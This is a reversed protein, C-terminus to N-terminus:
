SMWVRIQESLNWPMSNGNMFYEWDIKDEFDPAHHAVYERFEERKQEAFDEDADEDSFEVITVKNAVKCALSSSYWIKDTQLDITIEDTLLDYWACVNADVALHKCVEYGNWTYYVMRHTSDHVREEGIIGREKMVDTTHWSYLRLNIEKPTNPVEFM